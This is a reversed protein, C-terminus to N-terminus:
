SDLFQQVKTQEAILDSLREAVEEVYESNQAEEKKLELKQKEIDRHLRNKKHLMVLRRLKKSYDSESEAEDDKSLRDPNEFISDMQILIESLLASLDDPLLNMVHNLEQWQWFEGGRLRDRFFIFLLYIQKSSWDLEDLLVTDQWFTPHRLLLALIEKEVRSAEPREEVVEETEERFSLRPQPGAAALFDKWLVPPEVDLLVASHKIYEKKEWEQSFKRIYAFFAEIAKRKEAIAQIKYKFSFFYWLTFPIENKATDLITLLEVGSMKLSLDFPDAKGESSPLVLVRPQLQQQRSITLARFAAEIGANDSDFFIILTDSYRKILKAQELTFSTGLPAVVNKIGAQHLGIVDLYGEVLITQGSKRIEEAAHYVNYLINKKSFLPSEPSNVYKAGQTEAIVRGGFGACNNKRDFIPFMLRGHFRNYTESDSKKVLLGLDVLATTVNTKSDEGVHKLFHNELYRFEGPSFGLQFEEASKSSIGRQQLYDQVVSIALNKKFLDKVKNQISALSENRSKQGTDKKGSYELAIGSFESLIKM